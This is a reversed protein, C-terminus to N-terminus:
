TKGTRLSLMLSQRTHWWYAQGILALPESDAVSPLRVFKPFFEEIEIEIQGSNLESANGFSRITDYLSQRQSDSLIVARALNAEKSGGIALNREFNVSLEVHM